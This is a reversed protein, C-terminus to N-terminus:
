KSQLRISVANRQMAPSLLLRLYQIFCIHVRQFLLVGLNVRRYLVAKGDLKCWQLDFLV